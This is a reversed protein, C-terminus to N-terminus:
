MPELPVTMNKKDHFCDHLFEVNGNRVYLHCRSKPDHQNTLLSPRVTPKWLDGNFEWKPRPRGDTHKDSTSFWHGFGCGPCFFLFMHPDDQVKGIVPRTLHGTLTGHVVSESSGLTFLRVGVVVGNEDYHMESEPTVYLQIIKRTDPCEAFHTWKWSVPVIRRQEDWASGDIVHAIFPLNEHVKGCHQCAGITLKFDVLHHHPEEKM